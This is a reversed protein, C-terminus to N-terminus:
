ERFDGYVTHGCAHCVKKDQYYRYCHNCADEQYKGLLKNRQQQLELFSEYIEGNLADKDRKPWWMSDDSIIAAEWKEHAKLFNELEGVRSELNKVTSSSTAGAKFAGVYINHENWYTTEFIEKDSQPYGANLAAETAERELLQKDM